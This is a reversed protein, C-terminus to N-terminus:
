GRPTRRASMRPSSGGIGRRDTAQDAAQDTAQDNGPRHGTSVIPATPATSGPQKSSPNTGSSDASATARLDAPASTDDWTGPAGRDITPKRRNDIVSAVVFAILAAVCILAFLWEFVQVLHGSPAWSLTGTVTVPTRGVLLDITWPRILHPKGPDQAVVPPRHKDTWVIRHDHFRYSSSDSVQQWKPAADANTDKPIAGNNPDQNLYSTPSLTNRWAGHETIQLYAEHLSGLVTVTQGTKNGISLWAGDRAATVELGTVAPQVGVVATIYHQPNFHAAAPQATLVSLAVGLALVAV